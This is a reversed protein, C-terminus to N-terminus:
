FLYMCTLVILDYYDERNFFTGVFIRLKSLNSGHSSPYFIKSVIRKLSYILLTRLQYDIYIQFLICDNKLKRGM